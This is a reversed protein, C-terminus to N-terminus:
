STMKQRRPIITAEVEGRDVLEMEGLNSSEIPNSSKSADVAVTQGSCYMVTAREPSKGRRKRMFARWATLNQSAECMEEFLKATITRPGFGSWGIPCSFPVELEPDREQIYQVQRSIKEPVDLSRGVVVKNSLWLHVHRLPLDVSASFMSPFTLCFLNNAYPSTSVDIILAITSTNYATAAHRAHFGVRTYEHLLSSVLDDIATKLNPILQGPQISYL